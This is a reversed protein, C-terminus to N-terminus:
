GGASALHVGLRFRAWETASLVLKPPQASSIIPVARSAAGSKLSLFADVANSLIETAHVAVNELTVMAPVTLLWHCDCSMPIALLAASCSYTATLITCAFSLHHIM